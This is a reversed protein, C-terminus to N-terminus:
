WILPYVNLSVGSKVHMAGKCPPDEATSPEFEHCAPWSDTVKVTLIGCGHAKNRFRPYLLGAVFWSRWGPSM